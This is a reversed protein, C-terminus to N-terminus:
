VDDEFLYIMINNEQKKEGSVEELAKFAGDLLKYVNNLKIRNYIYFIKSM